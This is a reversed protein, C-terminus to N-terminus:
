GTKRARWFLLTECSKGEEPTGPCIAGSVGLQWEDNSVYHEVGEDDYVFTGNWSHDILFFEGGRFELYAHLRSATDSRLVVDNKEARGLYFTPNSFDVLSVNGQWIICLQAARAKSSLEATSNRRTSETDVCALPDSAEQMVEKLVINKKPLKRKLVLPVTQISPSGGSDATRPKRRPRTGAKGPRAVRLEKSAPSPQAEQAYPFRPAGLGPTGTATVDGAVNDDAVRHAAVVTHQEGAIAAAPVRARDWAVDYLRLDVSGLAVASASQPTMIQVTKPSVQRCVEDSAIIQADGALTVLRTVKAVSEGTYLGNRQAVDGAHLGVRVAPFSLCRFSTMAVQNQVECAAEVGDDATDFACLLSTGLIRILQGNHRRLAVNTLSTCQEVFDRASRAGEQERVTAASALDVLMLTLYEVKGETMLKERATRQKETDEDHISREAGDVSVMAKTQTFANSALTKAPIIGVRILISSDSASIPVSASSLVSM